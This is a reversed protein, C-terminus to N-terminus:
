LLIAGYINNTKNARLISCKEIKIVKFLTGIGVWCTVWIPDGLHVYVLHYRGAGCSCLCPQEFDQSDQKWPCMPFKLRYIIPLQSSDCCSWSVNCSALMRNMTPVVVPNKGEHDKLILHKQTLGSFCNSLQHLWTLRFPTALSWCMPVFPVRAPGSPQLRM